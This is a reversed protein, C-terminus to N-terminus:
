VFEKINFSQDAVFDRYRNGKKVKTTWIRENNYILICDIPYTMKRDFDDYKFALIWIVQWLVTSEGNIQCLNNLVKKDDRNIIFDTRIKDALYNVESTGGNKWSDIDGRCEKRSYAQDWNIRWERTKNGAAAEFLRLKLNKVDEWRGVKEELPNSLENWMADLNKDYQKLLEKHNM